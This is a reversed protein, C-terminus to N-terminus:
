MIYYCSLVLIEMKFIFFCVWSLFFFFFFTLVSFKQANTQRIRVSDPSLEVRSFGYNRVGLFTWGRAARYGSKLKNM